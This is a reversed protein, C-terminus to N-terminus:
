PSDGPVAMGAVAGVATLGINLLSEGGPVSSASLTLVVHAVITSLAVLTLAAVIIPRNKGM